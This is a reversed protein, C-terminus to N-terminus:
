SKLYNPMYIPLATIGSYNKLLNRQGAKFIVYRFGETWVDPFDRSEIISNYVITTDELLMEGCYKILEALIDDCSLSKNNELYDIAVEVEQVKFNSNLIDM